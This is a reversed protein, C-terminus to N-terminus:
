FFFFGSPEPVSEKHPVSIYPDVRQQTLTTFFFGVRFEFDFISASHMCCDEDKKRAQARLSRDGVGV